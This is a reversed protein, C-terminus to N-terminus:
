WDTAATSDFGCIFSCSDLCISSTVSEDEGACNWCSTSFSVCAQPSKRRSAFILISYVARWAKAFCDFVLSRTDCGRKSTRTSPRPDPFDGPLVSGQDGESDRSKKSAMSHAALCDHLLPRTPVFPM